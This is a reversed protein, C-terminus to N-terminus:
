KGEISEVMEKIDKIKVGIVPKNYPYEWGKREFKNGKHVVITPYTDLPSDYIAAMVRGEETGVDYKVIELNDGYDKSVRKLASNVKDLAGDCVSCDKKGIIAIRTKGPEIVSELIEEELNKLSNMEGSYYKQTERRKKLEGKKSKNWSRPDSFYGVVRTKQSIKQPDENGCPGCSDNLGRSHDGCSLCVTHEGSFVIQSSQTNDYTTKVM